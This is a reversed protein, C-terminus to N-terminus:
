QENKKERYDDYYEVKIETLFEIGYLEGDADIDIRIDDNGEIRKTTLPKKLEEKVQLYSASNGIKLKM